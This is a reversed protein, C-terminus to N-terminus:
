RWPSAAHAGSFVDEGDCTRLYDRFAAIFWDLEDATAPALQARRTATGLRRALEAFPPTALLFAPFDDAPVPAEALARLRDLWRSQESQMSTRTARRQQLTIARPDALFDFTDVATEQNRDSTSIPRRWRIRSRM